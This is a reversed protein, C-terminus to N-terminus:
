AEMRQEPEQSSELGCSSSHKTQMSGDKGACRRGSCAANEELAKKIEPRRRKEEGRVGQFSLSTADRHSSQAQQQFLEFVQM